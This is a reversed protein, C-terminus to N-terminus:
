VVVDAELTLNADLALPEISKPEPPPASIPGPYGLLDWVPNRGTTPDPAGYHLLLTLGGLAGIGAAADPSALSLNRLLQERSAQSAGTFGQAALADLLQGMGEQMEPPLTALMEAVSEPVGYASASRAWHGHPDPVHELSPVITDCVTRLVEARPQNLFETSMARGGRRRWM